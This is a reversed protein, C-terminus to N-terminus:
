HPLYHFRGRRAEQKLWAGYGMMRCSRKLFQLPRGSPFFASLSRLGVRTWSPEPVNVSFVFRGGPRLAGAVVAAGRHYAARTWGGGEEDWCEAYSISLGSVANDFSEDDFLGLGHSFDHCVFRVRGDLERGLRAYRDANIAACDVGVVEAL